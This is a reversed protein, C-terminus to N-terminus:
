CNKMFKILSYYRNRFHLRTERFCITNKYDFMYMKELSIKEEVPKEDEQKETAVIANDANRNLVAQAIETDEFADREIEYHENRLYNSNQKEGSTPFFSFFIAHTHLPLPTYPKM